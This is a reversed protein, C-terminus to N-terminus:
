SMAIARILVRRTENVTENIAAVVNLEEQNNQTQAAAELVSLLIPNLNNLDGLEITTILTKELWSAFSDGQYDPKKEALTKPNFESM